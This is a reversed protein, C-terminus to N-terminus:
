SPNRLLAPIPDGATWSLWASDAWPPVPLYSFNSGQVPSASCFPIFKQFVIKVLICSEKRALGPKPAAQVFFARRQGFLLM